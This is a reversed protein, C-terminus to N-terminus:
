KRTNRVEIIVGGNSNSYKNGNDFHLEPTGSRFKSKTITKTETSEIREKRGGSMPVVKKTFSQVTNTVSPRMPDNNKTVYSVTETYDNSGRRVISRNVDPSDNRYPYYTPSQIGDLPSSTNSSRFSTSYELKGNKLPTSTRVPEVKNEDLENAHLTKYLEPARDMLGKMFLKKKTDVSSRSYGNHKTYRNQDYTGLPKRFSDEHTLDRTSRSISTILGPSKLETSEDLRSLHPNSTYRSSDRYSDGAHVNFSKSRLLNSRYTRAPKTPGSPSVNNVISVNFMSNSNNGLKYRDSYTSDGNSRTVYVQKKAKHEQLKRPLTQVGGRDSYFTTTTGGNQAHRVNSTSKSLRGLTSSNSQNKEEEKKKSRRYSPNPYESERGYLSTSFPDEGLYYRHVTTMDGRTQTGSDVQSGAKKNGRLKGVLKRFSEGLGGGSRKEKGVNNKAPPIDAAFRTRQYVKKKSEPPPTNHRSKPEPTPSYDPAPEEVEEEREIKHHRRRPPPSISPPTYDRTPTIKGNTLLHTSPSGGRSHGNYQPSIRGIPSTTREHKYYNTTKTYKEGHLPSSRELNHTSPFKKSVGNFPPSPSKSRNYTPSPSKTGNLAPSPSMHGNLPSPAYPPSPSSNFTHNPGTPLVQVGGDIKPSKTFKREESKWESVGKFYQKEPEPSSLFVKSPKPDKASKMTVNIFSTQPGEDESDKSSRSTSESGFHHELWKSTELKRTREEQHFDLPRKTLADKRDDELGKLFRNRNKRLRASLSDWEGDGHRTVETTEADYRMERAAPQGNVTYDVFEQDKTNSYHLEKKDNGKKADEGDPDEIVEEHEKVTSTNLVVQGNSDVAKKKLTDETDTVKRRSTSHGVIRPGTRAIETGPERVLWNEVNGGGEVAKKYAKDSIDGLHKVDETEVTENTEERTTVKKERVETLVAPDSTTVWESGVGDGIDHHETNESEQKQTDETTTTTVKPGSDQIVKGDELLVERQVRTAIQRKTVVEVKKKTVWEEGDQMGEKTTALQDDPSVIENNPANAEFHQTSLVQLGEPSSAM